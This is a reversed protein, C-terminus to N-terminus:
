CTAATAAAIIGEVQALCESEAASSSTTAAGLAVVDIYAAHTVHRM